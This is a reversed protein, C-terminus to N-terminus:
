NEFALRSEKSKTNREFARIVHWYCLLIAREPFHFKLVSQEVFDKDIMLAKTVDLNNNKKFLEVIKMLSAEREFATLAWSVVQTYGFEDVVVFLYCAYKNTNLNYTGDIFLVQGYRKYLDRM